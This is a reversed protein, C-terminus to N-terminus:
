PPMRPCQFIGELFANHVDESWIDQDHETTGRAKKTDHSYAPMPATSQRKLSPRPTADAEENRVSTAQLPSPSVLHAEVQLTECSLYNQKFPPLM